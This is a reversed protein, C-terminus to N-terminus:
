KLINIEETEEFKFLGFDENVNFLESCFEVCVKSIM